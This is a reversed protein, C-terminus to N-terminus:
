CRVVLLSCSCWGGDGDGFVAEEVEEAGAVTGVAVGLEEGGGFEGFAAVGAGWGGDDFFGV